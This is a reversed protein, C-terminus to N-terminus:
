AEDDTVQPYSNLDEQLALDYLRNAELLRGEEIVIGESPNKSQNM